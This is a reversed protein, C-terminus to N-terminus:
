EQWANEIVHFMDSGLSQGLIQGDRTTRVRRLRLQQGLVTTALVVRSGGQLIRRVDQISYGSPFKFGKLSVGYTQTANM